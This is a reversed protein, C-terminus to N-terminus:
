RLFQWIVLAVLYLSAYAVVLGQVVLASIERVTFHTSRLWAIKVVEGTLMLLCFLSVLGGPGPVAFLAYLMGLHAANNFGVFGIAILEREILRDGVAALLGLEAVGLFVLEAIHIGDPSNLTRGLAQAFAIYAVVFAVAKIATEAWALPEYTGVHWTREPTAAM